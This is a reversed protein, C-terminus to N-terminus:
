FKININMLEVDDSHDVLDRARSITNQRSSFINSVKSCKLIIM